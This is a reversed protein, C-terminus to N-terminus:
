RQNPPPYIGSVNNELTLQRTSNNAVMGTGSLQMGGSRIDVRRDTTVIDKEPLVLM